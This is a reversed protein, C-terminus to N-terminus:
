IRHDLAEETLQEIQSWDLGVKEARRVARSAAGLSVDLQDRIDRYSRGLVWRQRLIERTKRMSLREKPM